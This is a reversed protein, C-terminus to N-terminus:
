NLMTEVQRLVAAIDLADAKAAVVNGKVTSENAMTVTVEAKKNIGYSRPGTKFDKPVVFPINKVNLSKAFKEAKARAADKDSDLINVFVRLEDGEHDAVAQDLKKLLEGVKGDITRTFVMVQPRDGNKCRYCLPKGAEVGDSECGAVKTVTFAGLRSGDKPGSKVDSEAMAPTAFAVVAVLALCKSLVNKM